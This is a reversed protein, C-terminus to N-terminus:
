SDTTLALLEREAVDHLIECLSNSSSLVNCLFKRKRKVVAAYPTPINCMEMCYRIIDKSRVDFIKMLSGCLAFDLSSFQSKLIPCCETGYYLVPTCKTTLLEIVVQHSALRGVKGFICNFARYFSKKANDLSCRFSGSSVIYVGLYRVTDAWLIERGDRTVLNCCPQKHRLGIRTCLSKRVNLCMDLDFLESECVSLLNQLGTVSPALLLIDDAYMIISVCHWKIYCGSGTLRVKEFVSDIYIAFLYPSLVGGQRVGCKLNFLCSFYTGWKVCTSGISFWHELICLLNIPIRRQMLKIFLGHHNMKDFAKSLDLTCINVTSGANVYADVACRLTYIAHSCGLQKKFGFQNDSTAFYSGFRDIICHEFAKSIVPSISIGRFDDVTITKCFSVNKDKLIPVTYSRGFSMPVRGVTLCLNFLKALVCPLIPSCFQLHEVTIDDLDAAKGKSMKCIAAEVLEADFKSSSDIWPGSYEARMSDYSCKLRNAVALNNSSCAKSFYSMFHDAIAPPDIVGDVSNIAHKNNDFKSNWCKWFNGQKKMLADHLENSYVETEAVRRNRICHRYAAKDKSYNSFIPGSRPRGAAKWVSCSTSSKLKLEDLEQDWWFKFFNRKRRPICMDSSYSLCQTIQWYVQDLCEASMYQSNELATLQELIPQLLDRTINRYQPLNGHDWRLFSVPIAEPSSKHGTNDCHSIDISCEITIPAHDSLNCNMDIVEFRSLAKIDNILFYDITSTVGQSANYFTPISQMNLSDLSKDCRLLSYDKAFNNIIDSVPSNKDLDSNFDGGVVVLSGRYKLIWESVDNLIEEIVCLRDATGVCPLYLNVFICQGVSVIVFRESACVVNSKLMLKKSVLISIGGFPRGYLVGTEVCKRMASSGFCLYQPFADNLKHLNAPTLWHEQLLFVDPLSSLILDRVTYSGQNFGHMNFSVVSLSDNHTVVSGPHRVHSAHVNKSAM